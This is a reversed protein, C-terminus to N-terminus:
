GVNFDNLVRMGRRSRLINEAKRALHNRLKKDTWLEAPAIGDKKTSENFIAAIEMKNEKAFKTLVPVSSQLFVDFASIILVVSLDLYCRWPADRGGVLGFFVSINHSYTDKELIDDLWSFALQVNYENDEITGTKFLGYYYGNVWDPHNERFRCKSPDCVVRIRYKMRDTSVPTIYNRIRYEWVKDGLRRDIKTILDDLKTGNGQPTYCKHKKTPRIGISEYVWKRVRERAEYESEQYRARAEAYERQQTTDVAGSKSRGEYIRVRDYDSRTKVDSLIEYAINIAVTESHASTSGPNKDPHHKVIERRYAKKVEEFTANESIGLVKYHDNINKYTMM